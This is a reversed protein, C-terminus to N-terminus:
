VFSCPNLTIYTFFTIYRLANLPQLRVSLLHQFELEILELLAKM